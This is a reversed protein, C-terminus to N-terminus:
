AAVKTVDFCTVKTVDFCTVKTVDFCKVNAVDFCTCTQECVGHLGTLTVPMTCVHFMMHVCFRQAASVNNSCQPHRKCAMDSLNSIRMMIYLNKCVYTLMGNADYLCLCVCILRVYQLVSYCAFMHFGHPPFRALKYVYVFKCSVKHVRMRM